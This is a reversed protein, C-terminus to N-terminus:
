WPRLAHGHQAAAGRRDPKGSSLTPLATVVAVARPRKFGALRAALFGRLADLDLGERGVVLMAVRQGWVPDDVGFVLAESVDPHEAAALEVELPYVNEGGTVVLDTRRGHVTLAGDADLAGHDGTDFWGEGLPPHGDYGRMMARGRLLIRGVEGAPLPQDDGDVVRLALGPLPAGVGDRVATPDSPAQTAVQSCAETLGYTALCPVARAACAARLARSTAAGGCLVARLRALVNTLDRALLAHLMTPVVSLLTVAHRPIADLVADVDFRPLLVIPRRALLCRTLVSLGGVHCLPLCLLWRDTATWGLNQASAAASALLADHPLLAGKPTGSTGSTFLMAALDGPFLPLDDGTPDGGDLGADDLHAAACARHRAARRARPDRLARTCPSPPMGRTSMALLAAATDVRNTATLTVRDGAACAAARSGGGTAAALADADRWTWARGADADVMALAEGHTAAAARVSLGTM